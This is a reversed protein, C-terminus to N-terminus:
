EAADPLKAKPLVSKFAAISALLDSGFSKAHLTHLTDRQDYLAKLTGACKECYWVRKAIGFETFEKIDRTTAGCGGDCEVVIPM